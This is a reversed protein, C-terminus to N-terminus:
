LTEHTLAMLQQNLSKVKSQLLIYATLMKHFDEVFWRKPNSPYFISGHVESSYTYIEMGSFVEVEEWEPKLFTGKNHLKTQTFFDTVVKIQNKAEDFLKRGTVHKHFEKLSARDKFIFDTKKTKEM